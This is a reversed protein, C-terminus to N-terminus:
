CTRRPACLAPCGTPSPCAQLVVTQSKHCEPREESTPQAQSGKILTPVGAACLSLTCYSLHTLPHAAQGAMASKIQLVCAPRCCGVLCGPAPGYVWTWGHLAQLGTGPPVSLLLGLPNLLCVRASCAQLVHSTPMDATTPEARRCCLLLCNLETSTPRELLAYPCVPLSGYCSYVLRFQASSSQRCIQLETLCASSHSGAATCAKAITLGGTLCICCTCGLHM